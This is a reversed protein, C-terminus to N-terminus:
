NSNTSVTLTSFSVQLVKGPQEPVEVSVDFAHQQLISHCYETTPLAASWRPIVKNKSKVSLLTDGPAVRHAMPRHPTHIGPYLRPMASLPKENLRQLSSASARSRPFLMKPPAQVSHAPSRSHFPLATSPKSVVSPPGFAVNHLIALFLENHLPINSWGLLEPVQKDLEAKSLEAVLYRHLTTWYRSPDVNRSRCASDLSAKTVTLDIPPLQKSPAFPPQIQPFTLKRLFPPLLVTPRVSTSKSTSAPASPSTAPLTHDPAPRATAFPSTLM